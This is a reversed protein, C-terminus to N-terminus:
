ETLGPIPTSVDPITQGTQAAFFFTILFAVVGVVLGIMFVTYSVRLFRYKKNLVLGLGYIDLIMNQYLNDTHQMLEKMGTLFENKEMNAFNGFFLINAANSRVQELTVRERQVRPRASLVAFVLSILCGLLLVTTPYLLWPNADIKSAIAGLIVSMMLGNISIMINAKTDALSSLDMNVRYSTRFM